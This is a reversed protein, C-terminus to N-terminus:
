KIDYLSKLKELDTQYSGTDVFYSKFTIYCKEEDYLFGEADKYQKPYQKISAESILFYHTDEAIKNGNEYLAVIYKVYDNTSECAVIRRDPITFSLSDIIERQAKEVPSPEVEGPKPAGSCASLSLLILLASIFAIIKKM